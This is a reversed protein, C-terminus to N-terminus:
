EKRPRGYEDIGGEKHREAPRSGALKVKELDEKMLQEKNIV